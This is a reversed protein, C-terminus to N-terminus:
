SFLKKVKKFIKKATKKAKKATKKVAKGVNKASTVTRGVKTNKVIATAAKAYKSKKASKVFNKSSSKPKNSSKGSSSKSSSYKKNNSKSKTTTKYSDRVSKDKAYLRFPDYAYDNDRGGAFRDGINNMFMTTLAPAAVDDYDYDYAYYLRHLASETKPSFFNGAEDHAFQLM